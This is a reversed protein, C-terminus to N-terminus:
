AFEEGLRSACRPPPQGADLAHGDCMVHAQGNKGTLTCWAPGICPLDARECDWQRGCGIVRCWTKGGTSTLTNGHGPCVGRLVACVGPKMGAAIHGL